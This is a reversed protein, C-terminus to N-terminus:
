KWEGTKVDASLLVIKSVANLVVLSLVVDVSGSLFEVVIVGNVEVAERVIVFLVAAVVDVLRVVEAGVPVSQKKNNHWVKKKM